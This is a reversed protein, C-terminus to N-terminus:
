FITLDDKGSQLSFENGFATRTEMAGEMVVEFTM